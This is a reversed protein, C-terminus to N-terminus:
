PGAVFPVARCAGARIAAILEAETTVPEEFRTVYRGVTSDDHADSGGTGPLKLREAVMAALQNESETVKGNMVELGDVLGFTEREAAKEPTLGLHGAGFTLFGRFPHAAIIIGGAVDVRRRLETLGIVGQVDDYFGFVLMDGQDTVIENGRLVIIHHAAALEAAAAQSWCYNHDTLCVADLGLAAARAVM